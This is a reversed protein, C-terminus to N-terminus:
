NFRNGAGKEIHKILYERLMKDKVMMQIYEKNSKIFEEIDKVELFDNGLASTVIRESLNREDKKEEPTEFGCGICAIDKDEWISGDKKRPSESNGRHKSCLGVIKVDVIKIGAM